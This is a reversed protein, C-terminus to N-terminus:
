ILHIIMNCDKKTNYLTLYSVIMAIWFYKYTLTDLSIAMICVSLFMCGIAVEKSKFLARLLRGIGTCFLVAGVVGGEILLLIYMNHSACERYVTSIANFFNGCGYGFIPSSFFLEMSYKWITYRNHAGVKYENLGLINSISFRNALLNEPLYAALVLLALLSIIGAMMARRRSKRDTIKIYLLVSFGGSFAILAGRSGTLVMGLFMLAVSVLSAIRRGKNRQNGASFYQDISCFIGVMIISAVINPDFERGIIILTRRGDETYSSLKPMFIIIASAIIGSLVLGMKVKKLDIDKAVTCVAYVFIFQFLYIGAFYQWWSLSKSWLVSVLSYILWIAIPVFEYIVPIMKNRKFVIWGLVFMGTLRLISGFSLVLAEEFPLLVCYLMMFFTLIKDTHKFRVTHQYEISQMM